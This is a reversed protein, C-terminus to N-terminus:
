KKLKYKLYGHKPEDVPNGTWTTSSPNPDQIVEASDALKKIYEQVQGDLPVGIATRFGLNINAHAPNDDVPKPEVRCTYFQDDIMRPATLENLVFRGFGWYHRRPESQHYRAHERCFQLGTYDYRTTSLKNSAISDDEEDQETPPRMFNSRLNKGKKDFNAPHFITRMIREEGDIRMPIGWRLRTKICSLSTSLCNKLNMLSM